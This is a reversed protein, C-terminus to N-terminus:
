RLQDSARKKSIVVMRTADVDFPESKWGGFTDVLDLNSQSLLSIVEVLSYARWSHSWTELLEDNSSRRFTTNIRSRVYDFSRHVETLSGDPNERSSSAEFNKLLYDRNGMELLFHGGPKLSRAISEIVLENETETAFFGFSTGVSIVADFSGAYSIERMDGVIIEPSVREQEALKRALAVYDENIDIGVVEYEMKALETTYRGPGCCLDLIRSGEELDLHQSISQLAAQVDSRDLIMPSSEDLKGFHCRYDRWWEDMGTNRM